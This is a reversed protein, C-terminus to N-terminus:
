EPGEFFWSYNRALHSHTDSQVVEWVGKEPRFQVEAPAAGGDGLSDLLAFAVVSVVAEAVFRGVVFLARLYGHRLRAM